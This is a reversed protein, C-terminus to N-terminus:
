STQRAVFYFDIEAGAAIANLATITFRPQVATEVTFERETPQVVGAAALSVGDLVDDNAVVGLDGTLTTGPDSTVHVKSLVPVVVSGAPFERSLLIVDGVAEAGTTVYTDKYIVADLTQRFYKHDGTAKATEFDQADTGFLTAM